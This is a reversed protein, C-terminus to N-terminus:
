VEGDQIRPFLVKKIVPAAKQAKAVERAQALATSPQVAQAPRPKGSDLAARVKQQALARALVPDAPPAPAQPALPVAQVAPNSAAYNQAVNPQALPTAAPRLNAAPPASPQKTNLHTSTEANEAAQSRWEDYFEASSNMLGSLQSSIQETLHELPPFGPRADQQEGAAVAKRFEQGLRQLSQTEVKPTEYAGALDRIAPDHSLEIDLNQMEFQLRSLNEVLRQREALEMEARLRNAQDEHTAAFPDSASPTVVAYPNGVTQNVIQNGIQNGSGAAALPEVQVAGGKAWEPLQDENFILQERNVSAIFDIEGKPLDVEKAIEEPSMGRHALRAAQVYKITNKREIIEQHPIKDQFIQAVELSREMSVRIERVHNEALQVKAQVERSKNELIAILQNVQNETRDSLDELVSIKSQLLQLGRSLRPDDKPARNMRMVIVFIGLAFAFNLAIQILTWATL